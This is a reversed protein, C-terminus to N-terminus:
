IVDEAGEVAGALAAMLEEHAESFAYNEILSAFREYKHADFLIRLHPAAEEFCEIAAANSEALYHSM